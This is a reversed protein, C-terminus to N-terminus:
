KKIVKNIWTSIDSEIIGKQNIFLEKSKINNYIKIEKNKSISRNYLDYSSEIPILTDKEGQAIYIPCSLKPIYLYLKRLTKISNQATRLPVLIFQSDQPSISDFYMPICPLRPVSDTFWDGIAELFQPIIPDRLIPPEIVVVGKYREPNRRFSLIATASGLQHGMLFVPVDNFRKLTVKEVFEVFEDVLYDFQEFYNREGDSLGFGQHDIAYVSIKKKNLEKFFERYSEAGNGVSHSFIIMAVPSPVTYQYTKIWLKQSTRFYSQDSPQIMSIQKISDWGNLKSLVWLGLILL